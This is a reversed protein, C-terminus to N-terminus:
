SKVCCFSSVNCVRDVACILEQVQPQINSTCDCDSDGDRRM